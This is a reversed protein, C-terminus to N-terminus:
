LEANRKVARRVLKLRYEPMQAAWKFRRRISLKDDMLRVINLAPRRITSQCAKKVRRERGAALALLHAHRVGARAHRRAKAAAARLWGALPMRRDFVLVAAAEVGSGLAAHSAREPDVSNGSAPATLRRHDAVVMRHQQTGPPTAKSPAFLISAGALTVAPSRFPEVSLGLGRVPQPRATRRPKPLM